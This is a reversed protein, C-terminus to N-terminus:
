ANERAERCLRDLRDRTFPDDLAHRADPLEEHFRLHHEIALWGSFRGSRALAPALSEIRERQQRKTLRRRM